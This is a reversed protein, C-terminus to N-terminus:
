NLHIFSHNNYFPCHGLGSWLKGDGQLTPKMNWLLDLEDKQANLIHVLLYFAWWLLKEVKHVSSYALSPWRPCYLLLSYISPTGLPSTTLTSTSPFWTKSLTWHRTESSESAWSCEQRQNRNTGESVKRHNRSEKFQSNSKFGEWDIFTVCLLMIVNHKPVELWTCILMQIVIGRNDTDCLVM